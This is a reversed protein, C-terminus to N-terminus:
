VSRLLTVEQYCLRRRSGMEVLRKVTWSASVFRVMSLNVLKRQSLPTGLVCVNELSKLKTSLHSMVHETGNRSSM